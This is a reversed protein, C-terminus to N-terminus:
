ILDQAFMKEILVIEFPYVWVPRTKPKELSSLHGRCGMMCPPWFISYRQKVRHALTRALVYASPLVDGKTLGQKFSFGPSTNLNKVKSM